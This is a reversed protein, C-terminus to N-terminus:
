PRPVVNRTVVTLGGGAMEITMPPESAAPMGFQDNM